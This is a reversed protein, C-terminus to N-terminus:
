CFLPRVDEHEGHIQKWAHEVVEDIWPTFKRGLEEYFARFLSIVKFVDFSLEANFDLLKFEDVLFDVLPQLRRPDRHYFLYQVDAEAPAM